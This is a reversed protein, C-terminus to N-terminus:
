GKGVFKKLINPKEAIQPLHKYLNRRAPTPLLHSLCGIIRTLASMSDGEPVPKLWADENDVATKEKEELLIGFTKQDILELAYDSYGFLWCLSLISFLKEKNMNESLPSNSSLLDQVWISECAMSQGKSAEWNKASNKRRQHPQSKIEMCMFGKERLYPAIEDFTTEGHYNKHLGTEVEILFIDCLKQDAGRLIPLEMGQSDIKIADVENPIEPIGDLAKVEVEIQDVVEFYEGYDFRTLWDLNPKLISCCENYSTINIVQRASAEGIAFPHFVAKKFKHEQSNLLSCEKADPEFGILDIHQQLPMWHFPLNGVAGVDIVCVPRKLM